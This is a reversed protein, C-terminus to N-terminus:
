KARRPKPISRRVKHTLRTIQDKFERRMQEREERETEDLIWEVFARRESPKLGKSFKKIAPIESMLAPLKSAKAKLREARHETLAAQEEARWQDTRKHEIAGCRAPRAKIQTHGNTSTAEYADGIWVRSIRSAFSCEEGKDDLFVQQIKDNRLRRGMYYLVIKLTM